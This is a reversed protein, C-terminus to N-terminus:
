LPKCLCRMSTGLTVCHESTDIHVYTAAVLVLVLASRARWIFVEETLLGAESASDPLLAYSPSGM